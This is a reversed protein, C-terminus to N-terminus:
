FLKEQFKKELRDMENIQNKVYEIIQSENVNGITEV